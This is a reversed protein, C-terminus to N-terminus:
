SKYNFNETISSEVAGTHGDSQTTCSCEMPFSSGSHPGGQVMKVSCCFYTAATTIPIKAALVSTDDKNVIM